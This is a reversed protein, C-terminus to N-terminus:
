RGASVLAEERLRQVDRMPPVGFLSKYERNFHSADHYGVRYAASAADLDEGLMLRRAEQLRLQKQFQLPSLATVAKFHHHFGSVSMGLQRALSEVRLSQDFDHRLREIARAISSTYGGLIALHRLRGGQEGMLLRYIIERTILPLLVPTDAPSDLLRTLRVIADLLNVDLPSVAIARVDAHDRPSSYGAEVMVSGVLAPALELRLSLYPREKSAELVQSIRPLEVTALLYHSPDYRYRSDGLLVEKSGQAIVCVSPELVSHLPKLPWSSRSLHLGQLPQVTGDERMARAIREVLEERHAQVQQAEREAQQHIMVNMSVEERTEGDSVQFIHLILCDNEVIM